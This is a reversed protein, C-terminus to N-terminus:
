NNCLAKIV